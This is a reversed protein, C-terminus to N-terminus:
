RYRRGTIVMGRAPPFYRIPSAHYSGHYPSRYVSTFGPSYGGYGGYGGYGTFGSFGPRSFSPQYTMGMGGGSYGMSGGPMGCVGGPCSPCGIGPGSFGGATPPANGIGCVGGPCDTNVKITAACLCPGNTTTCGCDCGPIDCRASPILPAQPVTTSTIAPAQPPVPAQGAAGAPLTVATFILAALALVAITKNM